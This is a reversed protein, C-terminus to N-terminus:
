CQQPPPNSGEGLSVKLTFQNDGSGLTLSYESADPQVERAATLAAKIDSVSTGGQQCGGYPKGAQPPLANNMRNTIYAVFTFTGTNQLFTSLVPKDSLYDIIPRQAAQAQQEIINIMYDTWMWTVLVVYQACNIVIQCTDQLDREELESERPTVPSFGRLDLANM